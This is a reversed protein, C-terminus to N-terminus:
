FNRMKLYLSTMEGESLANEDSEDRVAAMRIIPAERNNQPLSVCASPSLRIRPFSRFTSSTGLIHIKLLQPLLVFRRLLPFM